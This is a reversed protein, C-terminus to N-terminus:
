NKYICFFCYSTNKQKQKKKVVFEDAVDVNKPVPEIEPVMPYSPTQAMLIKVNRNSEHQTPRHSTGSTSILEFCRELTNNNRVSIYLCDTGVRTATRMMKKEERRVDVRARGEREGRVRKLCPGPGIIKMGHYQQAARAIDM